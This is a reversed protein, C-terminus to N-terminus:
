FPLGTDTDTTGPRDQSRDLGPPTSNQDPLGTGPETSTGQPPVANLGPTELGAGGAGRLQMVEQRLRQLEQMVMNLQQELRQTRQALDGNTGASPGRFNSQYRERARLPQLTAVIEQEQGDRWVRLNAPEGARIARISQILAQPRDISQGNISLIVDGTQLGAQEAATGTVVRSIRVGPGGASVVFVGLEGRQGAMGAQGPQATRQQTMSPDPQAIGQDAQGQQNYDSSTDLQGTEQGFLDQQTQQTADISGQQQGSLDQLQSNQQEAGAQGPQTTQSPAQSLGAAQQGIAHATVSMVACLAWVACLAMRKPRANRTFRRCYNKEM